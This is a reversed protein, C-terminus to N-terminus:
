EDGENLITIPQYQRISESAFNMLELAVNELSLADDCLDIAALLLPLNIGAIIEVKPYASKIKGAAINWPTGGFTDVFILTGVDPQHIRAMLQEFDAKFAEIGQSNLEVTEIGKSEGLLINLSDLFGLCLKGHTAIVIKM